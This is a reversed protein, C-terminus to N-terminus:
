RKQQKALWERMTKRVADGLDDTLTLAAAHAAYWDEFPGAAGARQGDIYITFRPGEASPFLEANVTVAPM